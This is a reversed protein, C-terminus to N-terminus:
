GWGSTTLKKQQYSDFDFSQLMCPSWGPHKNVVQECFCCHFHRIYFFDRCLKDDKFLVIYLLTSPWVQVIKSFIWNKEVKLAQMCYVQIFSSIFRFWEYQITIRLCCGALYRIIILQGNNFKLQYFLAETVPARHVIVIVEFGWEATCGNIMAQGDIRHSIARYQERRTTIIIHAGAMKVFFQM